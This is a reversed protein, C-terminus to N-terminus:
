PGQCPLRLLSEIAPSAAPSLCLAKGFPRHLQQTQSHVAPARTQLSTLSDTVSHAGLLKRCPFQLQCTGPSPAGEAYFTSSHYSRLRVHLYTPLLLLTSYGLHSLLVNHGDTWTCLICPLPVAADAHHM